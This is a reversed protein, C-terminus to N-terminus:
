SFNYMIEQSLNDNFSLFGNLSPHNKDNAMNGTQQGNSSTSSRSSSSSMGQLKKRSTM